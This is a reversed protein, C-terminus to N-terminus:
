SNGTVASIGRPAVLDITYRNKLYAATGPPKEHAGGGSNEAERPSAREGGFIVAPVEDRRASRAGQRHAREGTGASGGAM